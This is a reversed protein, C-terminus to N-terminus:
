SQFSLDKLVRDSRIPPVVSKLVEIREKGSPYDLSVRNGSGSVMKIGKANLTGWEKVLEHVEEELGRGLNAYLNVHYGLGCLVAAQYLIGGLGEHITKGEASIVDHTIAGILGFRSM